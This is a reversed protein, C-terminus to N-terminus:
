ALDVLGRCMEIEPTLKLDSPFFGFFEQLELRGIMYKSM